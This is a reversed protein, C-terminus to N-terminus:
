RRRSRRKPALLRLLREAMPRIGMEAREWRAVSNAAVGLTREQSSLEDGLDSAIQAQWLRIARATSSRGDLASLGARSTAAVLAHFGSVRYARPHKPRPGSPKM